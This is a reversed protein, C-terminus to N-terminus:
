KGATSLEESRVFRANNEPTPMMCSDARGFWRFRNRAIFNYVPDRLWKPIILFIRGVKWPFRLYGAIRLAASSREYKEGNELLVLTAPDTGEVPVDGLLIQAEASQLSAFMLNAKPDNNIIFRVSASCLNCYGDFFVVPKYLSHSM